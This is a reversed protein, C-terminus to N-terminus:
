LCSEPAQSHDTDKDEETSNNQGDFTAGKMMPQIVNFVYEELKRQADSKTEFEERFCKELIWTLAGYNKPCEELKQLLESCKAAKSNFYGNWLQTHITDLGAKSDAEGIKLWRHLNSKHVGSLGAIQNVLFVKPTNEIVRGIIEPTLTLPNGQPSDIFTAM